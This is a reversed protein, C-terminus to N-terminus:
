LMVNPLPPHYKLVEEEQGQLVVLAEFFPVLLQSQKAEYCIQDHLCTGSKLAPHGVDHHLHGSVLYKTSKISFLYKM